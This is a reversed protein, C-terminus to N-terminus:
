FAALGTIGRGIILSHVDYTGEYTHVSEVNMMHRMVGYEDVIGNGGHVDSPHPLPCVSAVVPTCARSTSLAPPRYPVCVCVFVCM